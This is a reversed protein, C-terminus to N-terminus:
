VITRIMCAYCPPKNNEASLLTSLTFWSWISEMSHWKNKETKASMPPCSPSVIPALIIVIHSNIAYRHTLTLFQVDSLSMGSLAPSTAAYISCFKCMWFLLWEILSSFDSGCKLFRLMQVCTNMHFVFAFKNTFTNIDKWYTTYHLVTINASQWIALIALVLFPSFYHDVKWIQFIIENM